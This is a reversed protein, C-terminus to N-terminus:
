PRTQSLNCATPATKGADVPSRPYARTSQRRRGRRRSFKLSIAMADLRGLSNTSDSGRPNASQRARLGLRRREIRPPQRALPPIPKMWGSLRPRSSVSSCTSAAKVTRLAAVSVPRYPVTTHYRPATPADERSASNVATRVLRLWSLIRGSSCSCRAWPPQCRPGTQPGSWQRPTPRPAYRCAACRRRRRCRVTWGRDPRGAGASGPMGSPHSRPGDGLDVGVQLDLDPRLAEPPLVDCKRSPTSRTSARRDPLRRGGGPARSRRIGHDRLGIVAAQEVDFAVVELLGHIEQVAPNRGLLQRIPAPHCGVRSHSSAKTSRDEM